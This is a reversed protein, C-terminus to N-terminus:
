KRRNRVGVSYQDEENIEEMSKDAKVKPKWILPRFMFGLSFGFVIYAVATLFHVIM